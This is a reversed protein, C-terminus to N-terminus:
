ALARFRAVIEDVRFPTERGAGAVACWEGRFHAFMGGLDGLGLVVGLTGADILDYLSAGAPGLAGLLNTDRLDKPLDLHRLDDPQADWRATAVAGLMRTALGSALATPKVILVLGDASPRRVSFLIEDEVVPQDDPGHPDRCRSKRYYYISPSGPLWRPERVEYRYGRNNEIGVVVDELWGRQEPCPAFGLREVAQQRARSRRWQAIASWVVLGIVLLVGLGVLLTTLM